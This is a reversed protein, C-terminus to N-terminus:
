SDDISSPIFNHEREIRADNLMDSPVAELRLVKLKRALCVSHRRFLQKIEGKLKVVSVLQALLM